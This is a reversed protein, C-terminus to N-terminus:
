VWNEVCTGLFDECLDSLIQITLHFSGNQARSPPYPPNDEGEEVEEGEKGDKRAREKRGKIIAHNYRRIQTTPYISGSYAVGMNYALPMLM